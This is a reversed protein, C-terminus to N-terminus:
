LHCWSDLIEISEVTQPHDSGITKIRMNVVTKLLQIAEAHRDQSQYTHALNAMSTLTSPHELGLVRKNTEMVQMELEEAENWRGQNRYTSALNGMSTLTDPHELKLVRKNTKIVQVFLEEAENWRGQNRYTSALNGMSTLTSPHELGLVRKSTEMVQVDLEEAGKWRGQNRYTSALNGMSALTDPHELGLVRKRTEMVQVNLEEAEKWKGAEYLTLAFNSQTRISGCIISSSYKMCATVHPLLTRRYVYDRHEFRWTISSALISQAISLYYTRKESALRDYAWGHVLRHMSFYRGSEDKNILSFALLTSIGQRFLFKNWKGSQNIRLLDDTIGADRDFEQKLRSEVYSNDGESNEAAFEFIEEGVSEYHFFAFVNLLLLAVSSGDGEMPKVGAEKAIANYSLDWTTYVAQDYSSAGKYADYSLLAHRHERFTAVFDQISCQSNAIYAGAQDIALALFGLEEVISVALSQYSETSDDLRASKLLLKTADDRDLENIGCTHSKPISRLMHNRSTYLINGQNGPPLLESLAQINDAGDFLLLWEQACRELQSLANDISISQEMNPALLSAIQKYSQQVTDKNSADM